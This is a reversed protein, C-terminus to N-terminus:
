TPEGSETSEGATWVGDENMAGCCDCIYPESMLYADKTANGGCLPCTITDKM